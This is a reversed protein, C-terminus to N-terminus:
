TGNKTRKRKKPKYAHSPAAHSPGAAGTDVLLNFLSDLGGGPGAAVNGGNEAGGSYMNRRFSDIGSNQGAESADTGPFYWAVIFSDFGRTRM